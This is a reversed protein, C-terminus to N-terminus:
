DVQAGAARIVPAFAAENAARFAALEAPGVPWPTAGNEEFRGKLEPTALAQRTLAGIREVM